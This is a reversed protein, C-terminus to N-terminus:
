ERVDFKKKIGDWTALTRGTESVVVIKTLSKGPGAIACDFTALMGARTNLVLGTWIAREIHLTPTDNLMSTSLLVGKAMATELRRKADQQNCANAGTAFIILGFLATVTPKLIM